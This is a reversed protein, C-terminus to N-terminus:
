SNRRNEESEAEIKMPKALSLRKRYRCWKVGIKYIENIEFLYAEKM